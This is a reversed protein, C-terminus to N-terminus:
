ASDGFELTEFALLVRGDPAIDLLRSRQPTGLIERERGSLGVARLQLDAGQESASFWLEKGNPSWALGQTSAYEKTLQTHNGKEDVISVFGRDDDYVSHELFAMAKGNPSIRVYDRYGSTTYIVHGTPYELQVKGDLHRIVAIQGDTAYDASIV